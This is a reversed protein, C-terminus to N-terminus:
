REDVDPSPKRDSSPSSDEPEAQERTWRPKFGDRTRSSSRRRARRGSSWTPSFRRAGRMRSVNSRERRMFYYLVLYVVFIIFAAGAAPSGM